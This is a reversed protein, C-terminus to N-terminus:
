EADRRAVILFEIYGEAGTIPSQDIGIVCWGPMGSVWSEIKDCVARHQTLIVFL